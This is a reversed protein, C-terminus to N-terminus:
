QLDVTATLSLQNTLVVTSVSADIGTADDLTLPAFDSATPRSGPALSGKVTCFVGPDFGAGSAVYVTVMGPSSITAATYVGSVLSGSATGAASVVGDDTEDNLTSKLTVGAPLTITVKYSTIKTGSPIPSTTATSLTLLATTPEFPLPTVSTGGGGGCGSLALIGCTVLLLSRLSIKKM